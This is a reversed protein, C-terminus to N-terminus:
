NKERKTEKKGKKQRVTKKLSGGGRKKKKRKKKKRGGSKRGSPRSASKRRKRRKEPIGRKRAIEGRPEPEAPSTQGGGGTGDCTRVTEQGSPIERAGVTGVAALMYILVAGFIMMGTRGM